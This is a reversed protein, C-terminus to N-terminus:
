FAFHTAQGAVVIWTVLMGSLFAGIYIHGTKRYFYTSVLGVIAFIPFFQFMVIFWLSGTAIGLPGGAFLPIYHYLEIVLYGVLLIAINILAEKWFSLEGGGSKGLRLQGHYCLGLVLYFLTFPIFYGLFIRFQFFSMPKIAFVWLRYDTQFAWDSFILTLYAAFCIVAAL